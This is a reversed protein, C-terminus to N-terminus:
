KKINLQKIKKQYYRIYSITDPINYGVTFGGGMRMLDDVIGYDFTFGVIVVGLGITVNRVGDKYKRVKDELQEM